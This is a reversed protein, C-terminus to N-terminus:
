QATLIKMCKHNCVGYVHEICAVIFSICNVHKEGRRGNSWIILGTNPSMPPVGRSVNRHFAVFLLFSIFGIQAARSFSVQTHCRGEEGPTTKAHLEVLYM